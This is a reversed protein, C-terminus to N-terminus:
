AAGFPNGLRGKARFNIQSFILLLILILHRLMRFKNGASFGAEIYWHESSFKCLPGLYTAALIGIAYDALPLIRYANKFEM